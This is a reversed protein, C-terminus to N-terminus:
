TGNLVDLAQKSDQYEVTLVARMHTRAVKAEPTDIKGLTSQIDYLLQPVDRDRPYVKHLDDIAIAVQVAPGSQQKAEGFGIMANVRNIENRIGLISMGLPGFYEDAPALTTMMRDHSEVSNVNAIVKLPTAKKLNQLILQANDREAQTYGRSGHAASKVEALFQPGWTTPLSAIPFDFEAARVLAWARWQPDHTILYGRWDAEVRQLLADGDRPFAVENAAADEDAIQALAAPNELADDHALLAQAKQTEAPDTSNKLVYASAERVYWEVAEHNTLPDWHLESAIDVTMQEVQPYKPDDPRQLSYARGADFITGLFYERNYLTWGHANGNNLVATMQNYLQDPDALTAAQAPVAFAAACLLAAVTKFCARIM